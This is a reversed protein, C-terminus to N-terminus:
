RSLNKASIGRDSERQKRLKESYLLRQLKENDALSLRGMKQIPDTELVRQALEETKHEHSNTNVEEYEQILRFCEDLQDDEISAPNLRFSVGTEKRDEQLGWSVFKKRLINLLARDSITMIKNKLNTVRVMRSSAMLGHMPRATPASSSM